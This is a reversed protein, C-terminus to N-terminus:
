SHVGDQGYSHQLREFQHSFGPRALDLVALGGCAEHQSNELLLDDRPLVLLSKLEFGQVVSLMSYSFLDEKLKNTELLVDVEALLDVVVDQVVSLPLNCLWEFLSRHAPSLKLCFEDRDPTHPDVNRGPSKGHCLLVQNQNEQKSEMWNNNLTKCGKLLLSAVANSSLSELSSPVLRITLPM